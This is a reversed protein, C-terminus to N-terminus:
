SADATRAKWENIIWKWAENNVEKERGTRIKTARVLDRENAGINSGNMGGLNSKVEIEVEAASKEGIGAKFKSQDEVIVELDDTKLTIEKRNDNKIEKRWKATERETVTMSQERTKQQKETKEEQERETIDSTMISRKNIKDISQSATSLKRFAL